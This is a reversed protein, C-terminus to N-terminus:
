LNNTINQPNAKGLYRLLPCIDRFRLTRKFFHIFVFPAWSPVLFNEVPRDAQSCFILLYRPSVVSAIWKEARSSSDWKGNSMGSKYLPFTKVALRERLSPAPFSLVFVCCTFLGSGLVLFVKSIFKKM